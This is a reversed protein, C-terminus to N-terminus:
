NDGTMKHAKELYPIASSYNKAATLEDIKEIQYELSNQRSIKRGQIVIIVIILVLIIGMFIYAIKNGAHGNLISSILNPDNDFEMDDFDIEKAQHKLDRLTKDIEGDVEVDFNPVIQFETGCNECYLKDDPIDKGCNPCKM